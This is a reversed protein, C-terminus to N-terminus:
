PRFAEAVGAFATALTGYELTDCSATLTIGTEGVVMAWQEMTVSGTDARVHHALRRLAANGNVEVREKDLLLYGALLSPLQGDASAQWTELDLGAPLREVTVVLNARFGGVHEPEVAILPVGPQADEVLEWDEPVPLAFGATPHRYEIIGM